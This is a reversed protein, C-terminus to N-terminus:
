PPSPSCAGPGSSSPWCGPPSPAVGPPRRQGTRWGPRPTEGSTSTDASIRNQVNSQFITLSGVKWVGAGPPRGRGQGGSRVHQGGGRDQGGVRPWPRPHPRHGGRRRRGGELQRLVRFLVRYLPSTMIQPRNIPLLYNGFHSDQGPPGYRTPHNELHYNRESIEWTFLITGTTNAEFSATHGSAVPGEPAENEKDSDDEVDIICPSPAM